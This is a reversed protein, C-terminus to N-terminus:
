FKELVLKTKKFSNQTTFQFIKRRLARKIMESQERDYPTNLWLLRSKLDKPILPSLSVYQDDFLPIGKNPFKKLLIQLSSFPYEEVRESMSVVVPNRYVYRYVHAYYAENQILSWRYPGGFIHNIRRSYRGVKRSVERLLYNMIADINENPTTMIMHFHNLMLVFAHVQALYRKNVTRIEAMIIEWVDRIPIFFNERNNSRAYIHYPYDSTRILPKRPMM